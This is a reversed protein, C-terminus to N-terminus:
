SNKQSQHFAWVRKVQSISCGALTATREITLGSQRLTIIREHTILDAKRGAYEGAVKARQVGQRLNVGLMTKVDRDDYGAIPRSIFVGVNSVLVDIQGFRVEAQAFLTKATESQAIDGPVLLLNAPAGMKEAALELDRRSRANVVENCGRNLSARAIAFGICNSAGTAIVTKTRM